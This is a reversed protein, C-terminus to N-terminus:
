REENDDLKYQGTSLRVIKSKPGSFENPNDIAWQVFRNFYLSATKPKFGDRVLDNLIDKTEFVGDCGHYCITDWITDLKSASIGQIEM